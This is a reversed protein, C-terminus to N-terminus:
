LSRMAAARCARVFEEPREPTILWPRGSVQEIWVLGDTRSIYGLWVWMYIAIMLLGPVALISSGRAAAVLIVAPLAMVVLTLILISRSMPALRFAGADLTM